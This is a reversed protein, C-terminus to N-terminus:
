IWHPYLRHFSPLNGNPPREAPFHRFPDIESGEIFIGLGQRRVLRLHYKEFWPILQNLTSALTGESIGFKDTFYFSKLPEDSFLLDRCLLTQREKRNEGSQHQNNNENLLAILEARREEPEDLILGVSRKRVFRYGQAGLWKEVTPLERQISRNSIGLEESIIGITVPNDQPFRALIKIINEARQTLQM